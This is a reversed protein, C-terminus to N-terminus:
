RSYNFSPALKTLAAGLDSEGARVVDVGQFADVGVPLENALTEVRARSGLVVIEEIGRPNAEDVSAQDQALVSATAALTAIVMLPRTGCRFLPSRISLSMM